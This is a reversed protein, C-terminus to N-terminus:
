KDFLGGVIAGVGAGIGGVVLGNFEAVYDDFVGDDGPLFGVLFGGGFGVLTGFLKPHRRVFGEQHSAQQQFVRPPSSARSPVLEARAAERAVARQLVDQPQSPAPSESDTGPEVQVADAGCM